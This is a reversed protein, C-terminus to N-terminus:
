GRDGNRGHQFLGGCGRVVMRFCIPFGSSAYSAVVGAPRGPRAPRLPLLVGLSSSSSSSAPSSHSRDGKLLEQLEPDLMPRDPRDSKGMLTADDTRM